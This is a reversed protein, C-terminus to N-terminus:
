RSCRTLPPCRARTMTLLSKAKGVRRGHEQRRVACCLAPRAYSACRPPRWRSGTTVQLAVYVQECARQTDTGAAATMCAARSQNAAGAARRAVTLGHASRVSCTRARARVVFIGVFMWVNIWWVDKGALAEHAEILLEHTVLFLLAVVGFAVFATFVGPSNSSVDGLAAGLAAALLLVAPPLAVAAVRAKLSAGTCRAVTAAFAAGLFAMEICTAFGLVLGAHRSLACALGILFGDVLADITVPIILTWPLRAGTAPANASGRRRWYSFKAESHKHFNGLLEDLEAMHGHMELVTPHDIMPAAIHEQLHAVAAKLEGVRARLATKEEAPLVQPAGAQAGELLRRTHDLKYMVRHLEEDIQECTEEEEAASTSTLLLTGAREEVLAIATALEDLHGKIHDKHEASLMDASRQAM